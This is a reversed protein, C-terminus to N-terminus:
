IGIAFWTKSVPTVDTGKSITFFTRGKIIIKVSGQATGSSQLTASVHFCESPFKKNFLITYNGPKTTSGGTEDSDYSGWQMILGNPLTTYGSSSLDSDGMAGSAGGTSVPAASAVWSTTSQRYTLVQGDTAGAPNIQSPDINSIVEKTAKTLAM